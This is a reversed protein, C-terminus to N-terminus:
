RSSPLRPASMAERRRELGRVVTCAHFYRVASDDDTAGAPIKDCEFDFGVLADMTDSVSREITALEGDRGIEGLM